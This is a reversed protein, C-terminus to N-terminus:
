LLVSSQGAAQLHRHIKRFAQLGGGSVGVLCVASVTVGMQSLLDNDHASDLEKRRQVDTCQCGLGYERPTLAKLLLM